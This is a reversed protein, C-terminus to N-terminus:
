YRTVTNPVHNTVWINAGDFAVARPLSGVPFTGLTAGDSARLKTVTDATGNAVWINAGDCAVGYPDSGVAFDRRYWQLLAAKTAM